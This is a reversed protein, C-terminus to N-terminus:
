ELIHLGLPRRLHLPCASLDMCNRLVARRRTTVFLNAKRLSEHDQGLTSGSTGTTSKTVKHSLENAVTLASSSLCSHEDSMAGWPPSAGIGDAKSRDDKQSTAPAQFTRCPNIACERFGNRIIHQQKFRHSTTWRSRMEFSALRVCLIPGERPRPPVGLSCIVDLRSRPRCAAPTMMAEPPLAGGAARARVPQPSLGPEASRCPSPAARTLLTQYAVRMAHPAPPMGLLMWTSGGKEIRRTGSLFQGTDVECVM